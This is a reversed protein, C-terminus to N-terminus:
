AVHGAPAAAAPARRGDFVVTRDRGAHKAAYLADDANRLLSHLIEGPQGVAIGASVRITPLGEPGSGSGAGSGACSGPGAWAALAWRLRGDLAQADAIGSDPMLVVFEEGGMRGVVDIERSLGAVTEGLRALV